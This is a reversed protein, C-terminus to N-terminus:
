EVVHSLIHIGAINQKAETAEPLQCQLIATSSTALGEMINMSSDVEPSSALAAAITILVTLFVTSVPQVTTHVM